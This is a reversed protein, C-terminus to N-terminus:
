CDSTFDIISPPAQFPRLPIKQNMKEQKKRRAEAAREDATLKTKTKKM